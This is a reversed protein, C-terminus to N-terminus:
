PKDRFAAETKERRENRIERVDDTFEFMPRLKRAVDRATIMKQHRPLTWIEFFAGTYAIAICSVLSLLFSKM